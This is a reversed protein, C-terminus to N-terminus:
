KQADFTQFFLPSVGQINFSPPPESANASQPRDSTFRREDDDKVAPRKRESEQGDGNQSAPM